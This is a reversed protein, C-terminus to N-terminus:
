TDTREITEWDPMWAWRGHPLKGTGWPESPEQDPEPAPRPKVLEVPEWDEYRGGPEIRRAM